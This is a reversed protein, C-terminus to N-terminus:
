ASLSLRSAPKPPEVDSAPQKVATRSDGAAPATVAPTAPEIAQMAAQAERQLVDQGLESLEQWADRLPRLLGIVNRAAEVDNRFDVQMLRVIMFRYLKDLNEAIEGGQKMDLAGALTALIQTARSNARWRNEVNEAAIAAIAENLSAIAQDHLMAVLKVPTSTMVQQAQYHQAVRTDM